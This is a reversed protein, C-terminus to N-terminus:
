QYVPSYALVTSLSEQCTLLPADCGFRWQVRVFTGVTVGGLMRNVIRRKAQHSPGRDILLQIAKVWDFMNELRARQEHVRNLHREREALVNLDAQAREIAVNFYKEAIKGQARERILSVIENETREVASGIMILEAELQAFESDASQELHERILQPRRIYAAARDWIYGEIPDAPLNRADCRTGDQKFRNTKNSCRYYRNRGRNASSGYFLGGCADCTILQRLLYENVTPRRGENADLLRQAEDFEGRDVIVPVPIVIEEGGHHYVRRGSYTTNRLIKSIRGPWWAKGTPTPVNRRNLESAIDGTSNGELYSDFILRVAAAQAPEIQWLTADHGDPMPEKCVRYGYPTQGGRGGPEGNRLRKLGGDVLRRSITQLEDEAAWGRIISILKYISTQNTLEYSGESVAFVKVGVNKFQEQLDLLDRMSRTLRDTVDIAVVDGPVLSNLLRQLAPRNLTEGGWGEDLFMVPKVGHNRLSWSVINETQRELSTGTVQEDTSVRAYGKITMM